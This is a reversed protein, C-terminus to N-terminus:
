SSPILLQQGVRLEDKKLNNLARIDQLAVGQRNAIHSLTDGRRVTYTKSSSTSINVSRMDGDPPYKRFYDVIGNHIAQALRKQHKKDSLLRAEKPNSIFGTEILLSPVDPTKLVAFGAYEVQNKHLKTFQGLEALIFKGVANSEAIKQTMRLDMLVHQVDADQGELKYGGILDSRNEKDALWAASTSSAGKESIAFVSSGSASPVNFADAHISVFFDARAQRAKDRRERLGLYYDGDRVLLPTFGPTQKLMQHLEKAIALVVHKEMIRGVGIAGPDEGGHGADIVVVVDRRVSAPRTFTEANKVVPPVSIVETQTKPMLDVVLRYGYIDNPALLFTTPTQLNNSVDLVVRTDKGDRRASRISKIPTNTLGVQELDKLMAAGEIDLVIRSPNSLEFMKYEHAQTLDFVVRTKEPEPWVRVDRIDAQAQTIVGFM